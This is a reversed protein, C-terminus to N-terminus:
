NRTVYAIRKKLSLFPRELIRYSLIALVTTLTLELLPQLVLIQWVQTDLALHKLVQIAVLIGVMHLCYLGYSIRGLKALPGSVPLKLFSEQGHTQYLIIAAALAAILSREFILLFPSWNFLQARFFYIILFLLHVMIVEGKRWRQVWRVGRQNSVLLAAGAGVAMDGICSLTHIEYALPSGFGWRFIWSQVLVTTFVAWYWRRPVLALIVPWFLYFQEEVAISWLVALNSADPLGHNLFDFNGLFALYFLPNATEHPVAGSLSKIWPFVLFGFAVCAYYLPWIRLARRMWFRLVNVKGAHTREVILLYTILFGSLVFFVNVGLNGNAFIGFKIAQRVPDAKLVPDTTFLSHYFFVSLFCLARLSDLSPFSVRPREAM